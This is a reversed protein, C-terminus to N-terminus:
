AKPVGSLRVAFGRKAYKKMRAWIKHHMDDASVVVDGFYDLVPLNDYRDTSDDFYAERAIVDDTSWMRLTDNKPYYVIKCISSDFYKNIFGFESLGMKKRIVVYNIRLHSPHVLNRSQQAKSVFKAIEERDDCRTGGRELRYSRSEMPLEIYFDRHETQVYRVNHLMNLYFDKDRSGGTSDDKQDEVVKYVDVDSDPWSVGYIVQLMFSGSIVANKQCLEEWLMDAYEKSGVRKLAERVRKELSPMRM